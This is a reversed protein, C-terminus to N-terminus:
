IFLIASLCDGQAIGLTTDFAEGITKGVKIKYKVNEILLKMIHLEDPELFEKLDEFLIDRKVMDFAKSMDTLLIYLDYDQSTLAKEILLKFTFIQETRSRNMQYAAQSSPLQRLIRSLFRDLLCIALIKRLISLLIIPRLNECPGCKKGAKQLPNLLGTNLEDPHEGTKAAANLIEAITCHVIDPGFKVQEGLLEDLGPSKNNKLKQTANKIEETTFPKNMEKPVIDEMKKNRRKKM